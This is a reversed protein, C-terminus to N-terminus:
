LQQEQQDKRASGASGPDLAIKVNSRFTPALFVLLSYHLYHILYTILYTLSALVPYSYVPLCLRFCVPCITELTTLPFVEM